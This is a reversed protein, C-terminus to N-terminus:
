RIILTFFIKMYNKTQNLKLFYYLEDKEGKLLLGTQPKGLRYLAKSFILSHAKKNVLDKVTLRKLNFVETPKQQSYYEIEGSAARERKDQKM